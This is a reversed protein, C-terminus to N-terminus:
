AQEKLLGAIATSYPKPAFDEVDRLLSIAREHSDLLRRIRDPSCAETLEGRGDFPGYGDHDINALAAELTAIDDQISM